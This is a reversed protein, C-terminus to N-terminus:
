VRNYEYGRFLLSNQSSISLWLGMMFCGKGGGEGCWRFMDNTAKGGSENKTGNVGNGAFISGSSNTGVGGAGNTSNQLGSAFSTENGEKRQEPSVSPPPSSTAVADPKKASEDIKRKLDEALNKVKEDIIEATKNIIEDIVKEDLAKSKAELEFQKKKVQEKLDAEEM